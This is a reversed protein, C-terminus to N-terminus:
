SNAISWQGPAIRSAAEVGVTGAAGSRNEVIFPQGLKQALVESVTRIVVDGGTGAPYNYIIRVPKTPWDAATAPVAGTLVCALAAFVAASVRVSRGSRKLLSIGHIVPM